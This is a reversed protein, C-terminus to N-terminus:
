EEEEKSDTSMDARKLTFFISTGVGEESEAWISGGHAELIKKAIALGLGSGGIESNRSSDVRYFRQFIHSLKEKAIGIGNDRFEVKISGTKDHKKHEDKGKRRRKYIDMSNEKNFIGEDETNESIRITIKGPRKTIFKVSNSFINDIVRRMQEPDIEVMVDRNVTNEYVLSIDRVDMELAMEQMGDEFYEALNVKRFDYAMVGNEIKACTSLEDVLASMDQAKHYIIRLYREQKEKTDAVGDLIGEAYGDIATLPTKLDHSINSMMERMEQEYAIRYEISEKLRMRMEEFDKCLVSIEDNGEAYVSFNLDGDRMKYTAKRLVNIPWVVGRYIWLILIAATFGNIFLTAILFEAVLSKIVPLFGNVDTIIYLIGEEGDKFRFCYQKVLCDEGNGLYIGSNEESNYEKNKSLAGEIEAFEEKQGIYTYKGGKKIVLFSYKWLVKQNYEELFTIDEMCSSDEEIQNRVKQFDKEAIQNMLKVPNTICEGITAFEIGMQRIEKTQYYYMVGFTGCVLVIPMFMNLLFACTLKGRIRMNISEKMRETILM